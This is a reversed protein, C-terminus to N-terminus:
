EYRAFVRWISRRLIYGVFGDTQTEAVGSGVLALVFM